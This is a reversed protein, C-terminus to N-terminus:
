LGSETVVVRSIGAFSRFMINGANGKEVMLNYAAQCEEVSSYKANTFDYCVRGDSYIIELAMRM